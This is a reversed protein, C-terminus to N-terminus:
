RFHQQLKRRAKSADLKSADFKAFPLVHWCEDDRGSVSAGSCNGEEHHAILDRDFNGAPIGVVCKGDEFASSLWLLSRRKMQMMMLVFPKINKFAAIEEFHIADLDM